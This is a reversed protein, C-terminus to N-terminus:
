FMSPTTLPAIPLSPSTAKLVENWDTGEDAPLHVRFAIDPRDAAALAQEIVGALKRGEPDADMAAIVESGEPMDAIAATILGPQLPNVQGGISRYRTRQDPFLVAHSLADIASEAFVLRNDDPLDHSEWLAKVGGSAFGTFDQNKKEFGCLGDRDFHPFIANGHHDVRIRDAFRASTLLDRPIRRVDELYRHWHVTKMRAYDAQVDKRGKAEQITPSYFPLPSPARGIWPRLEKRVRGYNKGTTGYRMVFDIITGSDGNDFCNCYVYHQNSKRTINLKEPGRRVIWNGYAATEKSSRALDLEFGFNGAYARLDIRSKFEEFEADM